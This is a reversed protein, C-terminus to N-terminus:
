LGARRLERALEQPAERRLIRPYDDLAAAGGQGFAYDRKSTLETFENILEGADSKDDLGEMAILCVLMAAGNPEEQRLKSGMQEALTAVYGMVWPRHVQLKSLREIGVDKLQADVCRRVLEGADQIIKDVRTIGRPAASHRFLGKLYELM